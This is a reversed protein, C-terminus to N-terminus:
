QPRRHKSVLDGFDGLLGFKNSWSCYMIGSAGPTKDLSVLWDKVNELDDADYYAGAMTRFGLGSFHPLSKDRMKHYWCVIVLDKPIYNWSGEYSQNVHYYYDKMYGGARPGANHNPDLMDSWIFVQAQPNVEHIIEVQKTITQGLMEAISIGRKRCAECTGGMRIEDMNLMYYRPALTEHILRANRAWFEYLEPESMCVTVQEYYVTLGHYWSVRLREGDRIKGGPLIRIAPGQHDFRFNLEPDAIEAYDAGEEYVTGDKDSKVIVPTGPRRLVNVLGVEGISIEDVWFRGGNSAPAGVAVIVTDYGLSNFGLDVRTWDGTAEVKPIYYQLRRGDRSKVILPFVDGRSEIGETKVWGSLRYCRGPHVAVEQSLLASEEPYEGAVEFRMSAKGDKAVERDVFIVEGRAALPEFGAPFDGEIKEFGGNAVRVAPDPALWAEGGKVVFLADTVPLGEALNKDYDLGSGYGISWMAPIIDVGHQRCYDNVKKLNAIYEPNKISLQGIRGPLAIGNIGHGACTKAIELLEETGKDTSLNKGFAYVWRYPYAQDKGCAALVTLSLFIASLALKRYM